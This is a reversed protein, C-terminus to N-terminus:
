LIMQLEFIGTIAFMVFFSTERPYKINIYLSLKRWGDAKTVLDVISKEITADETNPIALKRNM